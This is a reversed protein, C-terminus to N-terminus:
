ILNLLLVSPVFIPGLMGNMIIDVLWQQNTAPKRDDPRRQPKGCGLREGIEWAKRHRFESRIQTFVGYSITLVLYCLLVIDTLSM